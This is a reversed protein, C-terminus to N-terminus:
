FPVQKGGWAFLNASDSPAARRACEIIPPYCHPTSRSVSKENDAARGHAFELREILRQVRSVKAQDAKMDETVDILPLKGDAKELNAKVTALLLRAIRCCQLGIWVAM